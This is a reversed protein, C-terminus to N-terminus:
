GYHELGGAANGGFLFNAQTDDERRRGHLVEGPGDGVEETDGDLGAFEGGGQSGGGGGDGGAAGDGHFAGVELNGGDDNVFGGPAGVEEAAGENAHFIEGHWVEEGVSLDVGFVDLGLGVGFVDVLGGFVEEVIGVAAGGDLGLEGVNDGGETFGAGGVAGSPGDKMERSVLGRSCWFAFSRKM